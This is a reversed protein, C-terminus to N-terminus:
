KKLLEEYFIQPNEGFFSKLKLRGEAEQTLLVLDKYLPTKEGLDESSEWVGVRLCKGLNERIEGDPFPRYLRIALLGLNQQRAEKELFYRAANGKAGLTVLLAEPRAAGYYVAPALFTGSFTALARAHQRYKTLSRALARSLDLSSSPKGGLISGAHTFREAHTDELVFVEEYFESGFYEDRIVMVPLRVEEDEALRCALLNAAYVEQASRTYIQLWGSASVALAAQQSGLSERGPLLPGNIVNMVLPLRWAAALHLLSLCSAAEQGTVSLNVREGTRAAGCAFSLLEKLSPFSHIEGAFLHQRSYFSLTEAVAGPRQGYTSLFFQPKIQRQAEAVAQNGTLLRIKEGNM